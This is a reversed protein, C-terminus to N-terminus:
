EQRENHWFRLVDLGVDQERLMRQLTNLSQTADSPSLTGVDVDLVSIAGMRRPKLRTVRQRVMRQVSDPDLGAFEALKLRDADVVEVVFLDRADFPQHSISEIFMVGPQTAPEPAPPRPRPPSPAAVPEPAPSTVPDPQASGGGDGGGPLKVEIWDRGCQIQITGYPTFAYQISM